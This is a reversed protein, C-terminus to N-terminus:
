IRISFRCEAKVIAQYNRPNVEPCSAETAINAMIGVNQVSQASHLNQCEKVLQMDYICVFNSRTDVVKSNKRKTM